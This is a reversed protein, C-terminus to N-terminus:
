RDLSQTQQPLQSMQGTPQSTSQSPPNANPDGTASLLKAMETENEFDVILPAEAESLDMALGSIKWGSAERELAWVVQYTDQGGSGNPETWTSHVLAAGPQDDVAEARTVQFLADPSGIPQVSRGIRRLVNQANQTLLRDAGGTDGGRRIADLFQSVTATAVHVDEPVAMSSPTASSANAAAQTSATPATSSGCGSPLVSLVGFSALLLWYRPTTRM